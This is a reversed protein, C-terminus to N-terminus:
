EEFPKVDALMPHNRDKESLVAKDLSIPWNIALAPDAVNVFLARAMLEPTRESGISYYYYCEPELAQYSSAVGKPVFLAIEPTVEVSVVKGFTQGARLDIAAFFVKGAVVSVYKDWPEAHGGRTAGPQKNYTINTQVQQFSAPMGAAVLKGHQFKEQFYGREDRMASVDFIILGPIDTTHAIFTTSQEVM